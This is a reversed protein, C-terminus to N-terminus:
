TKPLFQAIINIMKEKDYPKLIYGWAGLEKALDIVDQESTGTQLIIPTEKLEPIQRIRSILELGDIGPMMLDVIILNFDKVNELIDLAIIANEAIISHFGAAQLILKGAVQCAEEDDVFLVKQGTFHNKCDSKLSDTILNDKSKELSGITFCIKSGLSVYEAWIEGHHAKVIEHAISLGLGSGGSQFKTRSSQIFPKFIDELEYEPIGIGEDKVSINLKNTYFINITITGTKSFKLANSLLNRLVQKIRDKDLIINPNDLKSELIIPINKKTIDSNFEEIISQIIVKIDYEQFNYLMKAFEFKSMDLINSVLDILRNGSNAIIQALYYKEKEDIVNWQSYLEGAVGVIGHIPTRIEHSITNLFESKVELAEKLNQTREEIKDELEENMKKIALVMKDKQYLFFIALIFSFSYIYILFYINKETHLIVFHDVNIIYLIYAAVVGGIYIIVFSVWDVLLALILMTLASNVIWSSDFYGFLLCITSNFPLTIFLTFHWYTPLIKDHFYKGLDIKSFLILFFCASTAILRYRLSQNNFSSEQSSIFYPIFFNLLGLIGFETYYAGYLSVRKESFSLISDFIKKFNKVIYIRKNM